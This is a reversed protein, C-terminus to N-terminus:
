RRRTKGGGSRGAEDAAKRKKGGGSSSGKTNFKEAEVRLKELTRLLIRKEGVRVILAHRKNRSLPVTPSALLALDAQFTRPGHSSPPLIPSAELGPGNGAYEGMRRELVGVVVGLVEGIDEGTLKAKPIKDKAVATEWDAESLRLLRIFAILAPPLALDSELVFVDDGGQELWWDVRAKKVEEATQLVAPVLDARIEVLDKPNGLVPQPEDATLSPPLPVLDVHGYRRLLDSNPPDGYTNYIQEGKKIERTSMMGLADKEYFLKANESEYRANLMDALPVMTVLVDIFDDSDSDSDTDHEEQEVSDEPEPDPDAPVLAPPSAPDDVDMASGISTNGGIAEDGDENDPEAAARGEVDFSRSLIRSGMLHYMEITYFASISSPPFVDPRDHVLPLVKEVFDREADAKGLKDAISTGKLEALEEESWFMPTDFHTPLSDLYPGWKSETGRAAEWMMCLILGAWGVQMKRRKWEEAGIQQPLTSTDESLLLTRPIKFLVHNEPIDCLAVAGRGSDPFDTFGVAADDITGGNTTFWSLVADM